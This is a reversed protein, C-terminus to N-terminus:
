FLVQVPNKVPSQRVGRKPGGQIYNFYSLYSSNERDSNVRADDGQSKSTSM